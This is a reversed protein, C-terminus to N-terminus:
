FEIKSWYPYHDSINIKNDIKCELVRYGKGVLIHDIRFYMYNKHYTNAPGFGAKRYTDQLGEGIVRRTYSNPIDNFDGCVIVFPSDIEKIKEAIVDAQPGRLAAADALKHILHKNESNAINSKPHELLSEYIEKDTSNLKNSELHNAIVPIKHNDVKVYFVVSGNGPSVINIKKSSLIPKKSMCAIATGSHFSVTKIYPYVPKILRIIEKNEVPFEQLCVIDADSKKIYELIPYKKIGKENKVSPMSMVNYTLVKLVNKGKPSRTYGLPSYTLLADGVLLFLIVPLWAYRAHTLLWFVLFFLNTIVFFSFGLGAISLYPSFEPSLYQGYASILLGIGVLLNLLICILGITNRFIKM